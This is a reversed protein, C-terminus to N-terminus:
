FLYNCKKNPSFLFILFNNWWYCLWWPLYILFSSTWPFVSYDVPLKKTYLLPFQWLGSVLAVFSFFFLHACSFSNNQWLYCFSWSFYILDEMICIFLHPEQLPSIRGEKLHFSHKLSKCCCNVFFNTSNITSHLKSISPWSM